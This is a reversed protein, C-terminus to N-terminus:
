RKRQPAIQGTSESFFGCVNRADTEPDDYLHDNNRLTESLSKRSRVIAKVQQGRNLLQEVLLHGTAGSAGVVLTFQKDPDIQIVKSHHDNKM